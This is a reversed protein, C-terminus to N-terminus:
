QTCQTDCFFGNQAYGCGCCKTCPVCGGDSCVPGSAGASAVKVSHVLGLTLWLILTVGRLPSFIKRM